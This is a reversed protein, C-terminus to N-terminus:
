NLLLLPVWSFHLEQLPTLTGVVQSTAGSYLTALLALVIHIFLPTPLGLRVLGTNPLLGFLALSMASLPFVFVELHSAAKRLQNLVLVTAMAFGVCALMLTLGLSLNTAADIAVIVAAGHFMVAVIGSGTRIIRNTPKNTQFARLALYTGALYFAVSGVSLWLFPSLM